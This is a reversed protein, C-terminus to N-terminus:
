RRLERRVFLHAGGAGDDGSGGSDIFREHM